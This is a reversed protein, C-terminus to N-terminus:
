RSPGDQRLGVQRPGTWSHTSTVEPGLGTNGPRPVFYARLDRWVTEAYTKPQHLVAQRAFAGMDGDHEGPSGGYTRWAPSAPDYLYLRGGSAPGPPRNARRRTGPPPTFQGCDAFSGVRGYIGWGQTPGVEWGATASLNSLAHVGLLTPGGRGAVALGTRAMTTLWPRPRALPGGARGGPPLLRQPGSCRRWGRDPRRGRGAMEM